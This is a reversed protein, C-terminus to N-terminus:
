YRLGSNTEDYGKAVADLIEQQKKKEEEERKARSGEFTRFAEVANFAEAENLVTVPEFTAPSLAHFNYVEIEPAIAYPFVYLWDSSVKAALFSSAIVEVWKKTLTLFPSYLKEFLGLKEVPDAPSPKYGGEFINWCSPIPPM